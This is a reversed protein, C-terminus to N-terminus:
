LNRYYKLSERIMSNEVFHNEKAFGINELLTFNIRGGENKKDLLMREMILDTESVDLHSKGFIKLLYHSISALQDQPLNTLQNSLFAEAIMGIAIAEGHLLKQEGELKVSEVAHGITHGFNLIKRLGLEKPDEIVVAKKIKLSEVILDPWDLKELEDQDQLRNWIGKDKILGHKIVEAYGSRLEREPLTKLFKPNVIVSLPDCFSGIINKVSGYDIAVKGGISADVQALLTTPIQIFPIGRMYTSACFGGMDGIVGGGLNILVSKRDAGMRMLHDWILKCTQLTKKEEGPSITIIQEDVLPLSAKLLPLCCQATNDDVLVVVRTANAAELIGPIASLDEEVYISYNPLDVQQNKM